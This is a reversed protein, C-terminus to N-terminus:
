NQVFKFKCKCVVANLGTLNFDDKIYDVDIQCFFENGRRTLFWHIWSIDSESSEEGGESEEDEDENM